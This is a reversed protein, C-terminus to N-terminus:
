TLPSRLTANYKGLYFLNDIQIFEKAEDIKSTDIMLNNDVFVPRGDISLQIFKKNVEIQVNHWGGDAVFGGTPVDITSNITNLLNSAMKVHGNEIGLGLFTDNVRDRNSWFLLSNMAITSFNLSVQVVDRHRNRILVPGATRGRKDKMPIRSPPAVVIYSNGRFSPTAHKTIAIECYNGDWGNPCSCLGNRM